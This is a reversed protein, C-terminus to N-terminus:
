GVANRIAAARISTKMKKCADPTPFFFAFTYVQRFKLLFHRVRSEPHAM